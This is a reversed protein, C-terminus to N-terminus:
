GYDISITFTYKFLKHTKLPRYEKNVDLFDGLYKLFVLCDTLFHFTIPSLAEAFKTYKGHGIVKTAQDGDQIGNEFLFNAAM